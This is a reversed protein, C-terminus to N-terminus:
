SGSGCRQGVLDALDTKLTWRVSNRSLATAWWSNARRWRSAPIPEGDAEQIEVRIGGPASTAYNLILEKGGVVIPKTLMEGGAYPANVSACAM